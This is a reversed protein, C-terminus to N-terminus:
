WQERCTVASMYVICEMGEAYLKVGSVYGNGVDRGRCTAARELGSCLVTSLVNRHLCDRHGCQERFIGTSPVFASKQERCPGGSM